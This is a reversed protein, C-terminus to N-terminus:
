QMQIHSIKDGFLQQIKRLFFFITFWAFIQSNFIPKNENLIYRKAKRHLIRLLICRVSWCQFVRIKLKNGVNVREFCQYLSLCSTLLDLLRKHICSHHLNCNGKVVYKILCIQKEDSGLFDFFNVSKQGEQYEFKYSDGKLKSELVINPVHFHTNWFQCTLQRKLFTKRWKSHFYM